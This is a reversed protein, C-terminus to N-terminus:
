NTSLKTGTSYFLRIKHVNQTDFKLRYPDKKNGVLTQTEISETNM